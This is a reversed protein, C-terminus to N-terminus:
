RPAARLEACTAGRRYCGVTVNRHPNTKCFIHFVSRRRVPRPGLRSIWSGSEFVIGLEVAGLLDRAFRSILSDREFVIGLGFFSLM